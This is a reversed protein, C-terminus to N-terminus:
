CPLGSHEYQRPDCTLMPLGSHEYILTNYETTDGGGGGGM